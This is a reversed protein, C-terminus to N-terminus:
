STGGSLCARAHDAIETAREWTMRFHGGALISHHSNRIRARMEAAYKTDHFHEGLLLLTRRALRRPGDDIDFNAPATVAQRRNRGVEMRTTNIREM